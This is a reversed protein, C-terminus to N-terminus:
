CQLVGDTLAKITDNSRTEIASAAAAYSNIYIAMNGGAGMGRSNICIHRPTAPNENLLEKIGTDNTTVAKNSAFTYVSGSHPSRIFLISTSRPNTCNADEQVPCSIETGWELKRTDVLDPVINYAYGSRMSSIDSGNVTPAGGQALVTYISIEDSQIIMLRGAIVCDAQGRVLGGGEIPVAAACSAIAGERDNKISGLEDYQSQLTNKFTEVADRYRQNNLAAGTGILAGMILLGTVALFLVTEIITFGSTRRVNM